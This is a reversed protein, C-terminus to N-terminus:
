SSDGDHKLSETFWLGDYCGGLRQVLTWEFVAEDVEGGQAKTVLVRQKWLRDSVQAALPAGRARPAHHLPAPACPPAPSSTARPASSGPHSAEHRSPVLRRAARRERCVRVCARARARVELSSLFTATDHELLLSFPPALVAPPPSHTTRTHVHARTCPRPVLQARAPAVCAGIRRFREFQGLDLSRGFYNSRLFPDFSSFRYLVEIGHDRYPQSNRKLADLQTQVAAERSLELSPRVENRCQQGLSVVDPALPSARTPVPM